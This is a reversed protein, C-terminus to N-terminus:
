VTDLKNRRWWGLDCYLACTFRRQKNCADRRQAFALRNGSRDARANEEGGTDALARATLGTGAGVGIPGRGRLDPVNFTTSGDGAGYTTGIASFLDEEDTRSLATGDCFVWGDAASVAATMTITGAPFAPSIGLVAQASATTEQELLADTLATTAIGLANKASATATATILERGFAGLSRATVDGDALIEYLGTKGGEAASAIAIPTTRVATDILDEFQSQTPRDGTEFYAKVDAKSVISM